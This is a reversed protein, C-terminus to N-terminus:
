RYHMAWIQMDHRMYKTRTEVTTDDWWDGRDAPNLETLDGAIYWVAYNGDLVEATNYVVEDATITASLDGMCMGCRWKM